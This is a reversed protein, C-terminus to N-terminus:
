AQRWGMMTAWAAPERVPGGNPATAPPPRTGSADLDGGGSNPLNRLFGGIADRSAFPGYADADEPEGYEADALELYWQGDSAMYISEHRMM